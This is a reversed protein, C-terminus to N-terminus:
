KKEPFDTLDLGELFEIVEPSLKVTDANGSKKPPPLASHNKQEEYAELFMGILILISRCADPGLRSAINKYPNVWTTAESSEMFTYIDSIYKQLREAGLLTKEKVFKKVWLSPMYPCIYGNAAILPLVYWAALNLFTNRSFHKLAEAAAPNANRVIEYDVESFLIIEEGFFSPAINADGTRKIVRFTTSKDIQKFLYFFLDAEEFFFNPNDRVM